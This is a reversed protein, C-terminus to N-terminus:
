TDTHTHIQKAVVSRAAGLAAAARIGAGTGSGGPLAAPTAGFYRSPVQPQTTCSLTAARTLSLSSPLYVLVLLKPFLNEDQYPTKNPQTDAQRRSARHSTDLIEPTSTCADHHLHMSYCLNCILSILMTALNIHFNLSCISLIWTSSTVSM